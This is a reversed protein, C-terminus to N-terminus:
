DLHHILWSWINECGVLYETIKSVQASPRGDNKPPCTDGGSILSKSWILQPHSHTSLLSTQLSFLGNMAQPPGVWTPVSAGPWPWRTFTTHGTFSLPLKVESLQWDPDDVLMWNAPGFKLFIPAEIFLGKNSVAIKFIETGYVKYSIDWLVRHYM